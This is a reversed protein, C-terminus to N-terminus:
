RGWWMCQLCNVVVAVPASSAHATASSGADRGEYAKRAKCAADPALAVFM